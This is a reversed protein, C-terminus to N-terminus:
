PPYFLLIVLLLVKYGVENGIIKTFGFHGTVEEKGCIRAMAANKEEQIEVCGKVGDTM